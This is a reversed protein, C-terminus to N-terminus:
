RIFSLTYKVTNALADFGFSKVWAVSSFAWREPHTQLMISQNYGQLFVLLEASTSITAFLKQTTTKDRFNCRESNWCRGTDTLYRLKNYDIDLYPEGIIGAQRYDYHKWLSRNDWRSMPRGHMCATTVPYYRRFGALEEVFMQYALSHNGKAKALTEYHYGIEHGLRAVQEIIAPIFTHPMYRFYYTSRINYRAELEAMRLANIPWRDVDHRLVVAKKDSNQQNSFYTQVTMPNFNYENLQLLIKEYTKLNFYMAAVFDQM